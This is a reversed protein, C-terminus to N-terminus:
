GLLLISESLKRHSIQAYIMTSSISKHGLLRQVVEISIGADLSQVAFTHRGVHCSIQNKIGAMIKMTRLHKNLTQNSIRPFVYQEGKKGGQYKIIIKKAISSLPFHLASRTKQQEMRLWLLGDTSYELDHCRLNQFDGYRLGCQCIFQFLERTRSLAPYESVDLEELKKLQELTLYSINQTKDHQVKYGEFPNKEILESKVAENVIAKIRKLNTVASSRMMPRGLSEIQHSLLYNEFESIFNKSLEGLQINKWGKRILFNFLHNRARVYQDITSQRYVTTQQKKQEVTQDYYELFSMENSKVKTGTIVERIMKLTPQVSGRKLEDFANDVSLRFEGIRQNCHINYQKNPFFLSNNFDWDSPTAKMRLSLELKTRKYLVRAYIAYSDLEKKGYQHLFIKVTPRKEEFYIM